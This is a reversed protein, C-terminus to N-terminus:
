PCSCTGGLSQIGACIAQCVSSIYDKIAALGTSPDDLKDEVAGVATAIASLGYFENDLKGEITALAIDVSDFRGPIDYDMITDLKDEVAGVATAIASLGYFENDLKGEITALAIDVSDFRGPIDYDMITDLKSEITALLGKIATDHDSIANLIDNKAGAIANKIGTDHAALEADDTFRTEDDLKSELKNLDAILETGLEGFEFRFTKILQVDQYITPLWQVWNGYADTGYHLVTLKAALDDLKAELAEPTQALGVAWLLGVGLVALVLKKM